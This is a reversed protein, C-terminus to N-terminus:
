GLCIRFLITESHLQPQAGFFPYFQGRKLVPVNDGFLLQQIANAVPHEPWHLCVYVHVSLYVCVSVSVYVYAFVKVVVLAVVYALVYV